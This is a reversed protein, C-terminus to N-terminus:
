RSTNIDNLASYHAIRVFAVTKCRVRNRILRVKRKLLFKDISNKLAESALVLGSILLGVLAVILPGIFHDFIATEYNVLM